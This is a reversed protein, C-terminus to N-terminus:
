AFRARILSFDEVRPPTDQQSDVLRALRLEDEALRALREARSSNETLPLCFEAALRAVLVAVFFAPFDGESARFLYRLVLEEADSHLQRNVIQYAIGRGRVEDGASLAKLFDIPLQYAYAFDTTPEVALRALKSHATAFSWPHACLLADRAIPYLRAAVRAEASGDEFSSIGDAGLKILASSCLEISSLAM